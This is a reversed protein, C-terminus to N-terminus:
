RDNAEDKVEIKVPYMCGEYLQYVCKTSAVFIVDKFVIMGVFEENIPLCTIYKFGKRKEVM